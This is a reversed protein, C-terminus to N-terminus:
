RKAPGEQGINQQSSVRLELRSREIGTFSSQDIPPHSHEELYGVVCGDADVKL